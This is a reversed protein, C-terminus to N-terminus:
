NWITKSSIFAKSLKNLGELSIFTSYKQKTIKNTLIMSIHENNILSIKLSQQRESSNLNYEDMESEEM